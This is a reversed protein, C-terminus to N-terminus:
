AANAPVGGPAPVARPYSVTLPLYSDGCGRSEAQVDKVFLDMETTLDICGVSGPVKGGHIFFGGRDGVDTEPFVHITVRWNGWSAEPWRGFWNYNIETLRIWFRGEPIPGGKERQQGAYRRMEAELGDGTPEGSVARYSTDKKGGSLTLRSGDFLLALNGARPITPNGKEHAYRSV